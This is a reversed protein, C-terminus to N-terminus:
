FKLGRNVGMEALNLFFCSNPNEMYNWCSTWLTGSEVPKADDMASLRVTCGVLETGATDRYRAPLEYLSGHGSLFMILLNAMLM